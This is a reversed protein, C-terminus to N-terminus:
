MEVNRDVKMTASNEHIIEVHGQIQFSEPQQIILSPLEQKVDSSIEHLIASTADITMSQVIVQDM